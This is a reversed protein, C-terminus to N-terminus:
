TRVIQCTHMCWLWIELNMMTKRNMSEVIDVISSLLFLPSSLYRSPIIIEKGELMRLMVVFLPLRLFGRSATLSVRLGSVRSGYIM